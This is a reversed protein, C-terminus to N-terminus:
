LGEPLVVGEDLYWRTIINRYTPTDTQSQTGMVFQYQDSPYRITDPVKMRCQDTKMEGLQGNACERYGYPCYSPSVQGESVSPYNDVGPCVNDSAKCYAVHISRIHTSASDPNTVEWRVKRFGALAVPLALQPKTRDLISISNFETAIPESEPDDPNFTTHIHFSWSNM